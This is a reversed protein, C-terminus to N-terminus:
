VLPLCYQIPFFPKSTASYLEEKRSLYLTSIIVHIIIKQKNGRGSLFALIIKMIKEAHTIKESNRYCLLFGYSWEGGKLKRADSEIGHSLFGSQRVILKLFTLEQKTLEIQPTLYRKALKM